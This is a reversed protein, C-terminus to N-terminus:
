KDLHTSDLKAPPDYQNDEVFQSRTNQHTRIYCLLRNTSPQRCTRTSSIKGANNRINKKHSFTVLNVQYHTHTRSSFYALHLQINKTTFQSTAGPKAFAGVYKIPVYVAKTDTKKDYWRQFWFDFHKYCRTIKYWRPLDKYISKASCCVHRFNEELVCTM